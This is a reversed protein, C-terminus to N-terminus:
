GVEAEVVGCCCAGMLRGAAVRIGHRLEHLHHLIHGSVELRRGRGCGLIRLGLHGLSQLLQPEVQCLNRCAQIIFTLVKVLGPKLAASNTQELVFLQFGSLQM